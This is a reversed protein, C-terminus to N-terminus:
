ADEKITHTAAKKVQRRARQYEAEAKRCNNCRCGRSYDARTRGHQHRLNRIPV